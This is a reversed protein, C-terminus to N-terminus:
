VFNNRAITGLNAQYGTTFVIASRAGYFEALERELARHEPYTGNAMTIVEYLM